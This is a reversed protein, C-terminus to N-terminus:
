PTKPCMAVTRPDLAVAVLDDLLVEQVEVRLELRM